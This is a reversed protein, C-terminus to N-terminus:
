NNADILHPLVDNRIFSACIDGPKWQIYFTAISDVELLKLYNERCDTNNLRMCRWINIHTPNQKMLVHLILHLTSIGELIKWKRRHYIFVFSALLKYSNPTPSYECTFDLNFWISLKYLRKFELVVMWQDQHAIKSIVQYGSELWKVSHLNYLIKSEGSNLNVISGFKTQYQSCSYFPRCRNDM